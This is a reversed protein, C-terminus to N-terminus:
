LRRQSARLQRQARTRDGAASAHGSRAM